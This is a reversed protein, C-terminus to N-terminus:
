PPPCGGPQSHKLDALHSLTLGIEGPPTSEVGQSVKRLLELVACSISIFNKLNLRVNIPTMKCMVVIRMLRLYQWPLRKNHFLSSVQMNALINAQDQEFKTYPTNKSVLDLISLFNKYSTMRVDFHHSPLIGM